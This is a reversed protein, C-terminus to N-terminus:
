FVHRIGLMIQHSLLNDTKLDGLYYGSKDRGSPSNGLNVFNYSLEFMLDSLVPYYIGIGVQWTFGSSEKNEFPTEEPKTNPDIVWDHYNSFKNWAYGAGISAYPTFKEQPFHIAADLILRQSSLQYQYAYNRFRSDGLENIHGTQKFDDLAYYGIGVSIPYVFDLNVGVEFGANISSHYENDDTFNDYIPSGAGSVFMQNDKGGNTWGMGIMLKGYFDAASSPSVYPFLLFIYLIINKNCINRLPYLPSM